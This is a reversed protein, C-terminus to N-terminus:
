ETGKMVKPSPDKFIQFNSSPTPASNVNQQLDDVKAPTNTASQMHVDDVNDQFIHFKAPTNRASDMHVDNVNDQSFQLKAPTNKASEMHVDNEYGTRDSPFMSSLSGQLM